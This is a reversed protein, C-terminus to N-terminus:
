QGLREANKRAEDKWKGTYGAKIYTEYTQRYLKGAQVKQGKNEYVIALNFLLNAYGVSNQLGLDEEIAKAKNYYELARNYEKKANYVRGMNMMLYAYLVTKQLGLRDRIDRSKMFYELARNPEKKEFYVLGINMLTNAFPATNQLEFRDYIAKARNYFELAKGQEGKNWYVLGMNNMLHAYYGTNQLGLNDRISRSKVYYELAREPEGKTWYVLGINMLLTANDATNQLGLHASLEQAKNYYELAKELEGKNSYVVGINKMIYAYNVTGTEERKHMIEVAKDLYSLALDFQNLINGAIFGAVRLADIYEPDVALAEKFLRMAETPNTASIELGRAYYEYASLAPRTKTEIKTKEANTVVPTKVDAVKIEGSEAMLSFVIKDQLEFLTKLTGDLKISKVLSGSEVNVLKAVVRVRDTVVTYSGTFITDAGILSGVRAATKEDAMDSLSFAIEEMVKKREDDSIVTISSIRGLDAIVSDTMGAAIWSYEAAGQNEFPYVLIRM